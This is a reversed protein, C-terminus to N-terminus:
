KEMGNDNNLLVSELYRTVGDEQVCGCVAKACAKLEPVANGMAVSWGAELFLERDNVDDGFCMIEDRSIGLFEMIEKAGTAKSVTKAYAEMTSTLPVYVYELAELIRSCVAAKEPTVFLELKMTEQLCAELPKEILYREDLLHRKLHPLLHDRKRSMWTGGPIQLSYEVQEEELRRTIDRITEPPLIHRKIERGDVWVNAGNVLAYGRIGAARISPPILSVSRGTAVFLDIGRERIQALVRRDHESIGFRGQNCDILTGDLDLFVAKIM